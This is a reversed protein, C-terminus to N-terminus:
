RTRAWAWGGAAIALVWCALGGVTFAAGLGPVPLASWAALREMLMALFAVLGSGGFVVAQGCGLLLGGLLLARRRHEARRRAAPLSAMIRDTFGADDIYPPSAARLMKELRADDTSPDSPAPPEPANM